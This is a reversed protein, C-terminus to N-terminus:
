WSSLERGMTRQDSTRTWDTWSSFQVASTAETNRMLLLNLSTMSRFAPEHAAM